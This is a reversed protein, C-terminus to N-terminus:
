KKIKKLEINGTGNSIKILLKSSKSSSFENTIKGVGSSLTFQASSDSPIKIECNGTGSNAEIFGENPTKNATISTNGTGVQIGIKAQELLETLVLSVNGNGSKLKLNKLESLKAKLNGTGIGMEINKMDGDLQVNGSGLATDLKDYNGKISLDGAGIELELEKLAPTEIHFSIECSNSKALNKKNDVKIKLKNSKEEFNLSCNADFLEPKTKKFIVKIETSSTTITEINGSPNNIELKKIKEAKFSREEAHLHTSILLLTSYFLLKHM